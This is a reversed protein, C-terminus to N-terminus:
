PSVVVAPQRWSVSPRSQEDKRLSHLLASKYTQPVPIAVEPNLERVIQQVEVSRVRPVLAERRSRALSLAPRGTSM